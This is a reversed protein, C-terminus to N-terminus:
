GQEEEVGAMGERVAYAAAQQRNRLDLKDLIHRLHVKVTNETVTLENAIEKNTAGTAVLVLVQRERDSLAGSAEVAKVTDIQRCPRFALDRSVVFDGRALFRLRSVFEEGPLNISLYGRAGATIAEMIAESPQPPGVLVVAGLFAKETVLRRLTDVPAEPLDWSLLLIDPNYRAALRVLDEEHKVDPVMEFGAGNLLGAMSERVLAYRHALMLRIQKRGTNNEITM